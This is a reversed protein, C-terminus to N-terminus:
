RSGHDGGARRRISRVNGHVQYLFYAQAVRCIAEFAEPTPRESWARGRLTSFGSRALREAVETPSTKPRESLLGDIARVIDTTTLDM